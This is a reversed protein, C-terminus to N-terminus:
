ANEEKGLWGISTKVKVVSGSQVQKDWSALGGTTDMFKAQQGYRTQDLGLKVEQQYVSRLTSVEERVLQPDLIKIFHAALWTAIKDLRTSPHPLGTVVSNGACLEDVLENALDIFSQFEDTVQDFDDPEAEAINQVSALTAPM